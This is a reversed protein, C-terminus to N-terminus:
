AYENVAAARTPNELVPYNQEVMLCPLTEPRKFISIRGSIGEGQASGLVWM